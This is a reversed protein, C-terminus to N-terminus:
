YTYTKSGVTTGSNHLLIQSTPYQAQDCRLRQHAPVPWVPKRLGGVKAFGRALGREEKIVRLGITSHCEFDVLRLYSGAESGSCTETFYNNEFQSSYRDTCSEPGM